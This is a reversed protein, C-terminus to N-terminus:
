KNKVYNVVNNVTTGSPIDAQEVEPFLMFPKYTLEGEYGNIDKLFNFTRELNKQYFQIVTSQFLMYEDTVDEKTMKGATPLGAVMPTAGHAITIQNQVTDIVKNWREDNNPLTVFQVEPKMENSKYYIIMPESANKAGGYATKLQRFNNQKMEPTLNGGDPYFIIAGPMMNNKLNNVHYVSIMHNIKLWNIIPSYHPLSWFDLGNTKNIAAFIQVPYETSAKRDFIHIKKPENEPRRIKLWNRSIYYNIVDENDNGYDDFQPPKQPRVKATPIHKIKAIQKQEVNVTKDWTVELFYCGHIVLDYCCSISVMDLTEKNWQNKIFPELGAIPNFGLGVALEVQKDILRKHLPSANQYLLDLQQPLDNSGDIGVKIYDVDSSFTEKVEPIDVYIDKFDSGFFNQINDGNNEIKKAM